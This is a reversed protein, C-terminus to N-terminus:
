GVVVFGQTGHHGIGRMDRSFGEELTVTDPDVKLYVLVEENKPRFIVCAVNVLRRYAIYHLKVDVEVEGSATLMEDLEGYLARLSAPAADLAARAPKAWGAGASVERERHERRSAVARASGPTSEVLLLGLLGGDFVRYRVLDIREDLRHVAVRDHHSFGAAICVM